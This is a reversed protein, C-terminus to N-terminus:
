LICDLFFVQEVDHARWELFELHEGTLHTQEADSFCNSGSATVLVARLSDFRSSYSADYLPYLSLSVEEM